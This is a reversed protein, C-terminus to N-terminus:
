MPPNLDTAVITVSEPLGRSMARTVIGTGCATELVAGGSLGTLRGALVRAFPEFLMPGMYRTYLEPVSGTFVTDLNAMLIGRTRPESWEILRGARDCRIHGSCADYRFMRTNQLMGEAYRM